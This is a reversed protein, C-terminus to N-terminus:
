VAAGAPPTVVLPPAPPPDSSSVPPSAAAREADCDTENGGDGPKGDVTFAGGGASEKVLHHIVRGQLVLSVVFDTGSGEKARVVYVGDSNTAKLM